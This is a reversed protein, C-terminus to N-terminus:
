KQFVDDNTNFRYVPALSRDMESSVYGKSHDQRYVSWYIQTKISTARMKWPGEDRTGDREFVHSLLHDTFVSGSNM